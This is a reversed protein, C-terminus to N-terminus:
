PMNTGDFREQCRTAWVLNGLAFLTFLQAQHKALGKYRGKRYGILNKIIHFPHEVKACISAKAKEIALLLTKM